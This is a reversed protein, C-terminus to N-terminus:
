IRVAPRIGCVSNRNDPNIGSLYAKRHIREWYANPVDNWFPFYAGIQYSISGSSGKWVNVFEDVFEGTEELHTIAYIIQEEPTMGQEGNHPDTKKTEANNLVKLYNNPTDNTEFQKRGKTTKGKGERPIHPMDEVFMIQWGGEEKIIEQKTKGKHKKSFQKPRYVLKGNIDAGKYKVWFLQDKDLALPSRRETKILIEKKYAEILDDLKMGFPVILLKTFGQEQKRKVLEKNAEM